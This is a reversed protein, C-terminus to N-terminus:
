QRARAPRSFRDSRRGNKSGPELAALAARLGELERERRGIEVRLERAIARADKTTM